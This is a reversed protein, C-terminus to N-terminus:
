TLFFVMKKIIIEFTFKKYSNSKKNKKVIFSTKEKRIPHKWPEQLIFYM